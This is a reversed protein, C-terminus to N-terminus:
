RGEAQGPGTDVRSGRHSGSCPTFCSNAPPTRAPISGCTLLRYHSRARRYAHRTLTPPAADDSNTGMDTNSSDSSSRESDQGRGLAEAEALGSELTRRGAAGLVARIARSERSRPPLAQLASAAASLIRTATVDDDQAQRDDAYRKDLRARAAWYLGGPDRPAWRQLFTVLLALVGQLLYYLARAPLDRVSTAHRATNSRSAAHQATPTLGMDHADTALVNYAPPPHDTDSNDTDSSAYGHIVKYSPLRARPASSSSDSETGAVMATPCPIVLARALARTRGLGPRLRPRTGVRATGAVRAAPVAGATPTTPQRAPARPPPTHPLRGRVVGGSQRHFRSPGGTRAQPVCAPTPARGGRVHLLTTSLM